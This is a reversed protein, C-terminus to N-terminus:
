EDKVQAKLQRLVKEFAKLCFQRVFERLEYHLACRKEIISKYIDIIMDLDWAGIERLRHYPNRHKVFALDRKAVQMLLDLERRFLPTGVIDEIKLEDFEKRTM